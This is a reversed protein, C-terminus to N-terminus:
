HGPQVRTDAPPGQMAAGAVTFVTPLVRQHHHVLDVVHPCAYVPRHGLHHVVPLALLVARRRCRRRRCRGTRHSRPPSTSSLAAASAPANTARPTSLTLCLNSSTLPASHRQQAHVSSSCASGSSSHSGFYSPCSCSFPAPPASCFGGGGGGCCPMPWRSSDCSATLFRSSARSRRRVLVPRNFRSNLIPVVMSGERCLCHFCSTFASGKAVSATSVGPLPATTAVFATFFAPLPATTAVFATFVGPLPLTTVWLKNYIDSSESYRKMQVYANFM